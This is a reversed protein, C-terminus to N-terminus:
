NEPIPQNLEELTELYGKIADLAMAKAEEYTEGETVLGHLAPIHAVYGGEEANEFIVTYEFLKLKVEKSHPSEMAMGQHHAYGVSGTREDAM